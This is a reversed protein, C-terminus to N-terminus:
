ESWGYSVPGLIQADPDLATVMTAMSVGKGFVEAYTAPTPHERAHTNSWLAPENDLDYYKVGGSIAPGFKNLMFNVFEDMYVFGDTKDPTLSFPSGKYVGITKWRSSPAVQATTVTGNMDAAVYGAMQITILSDAGRAQNDSVFRTVVTAPQQNIDQPPKPNSM